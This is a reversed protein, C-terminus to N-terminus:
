VKRLSAEIFAQYRIASAVAGVTQRGGFMEIMGIAALRPSARHAKLM